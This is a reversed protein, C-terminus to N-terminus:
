GPLVANSFAICPCMRICASSMPRYWRRQADTGGAIPVADPYETKAALADAWSEPRLFDM